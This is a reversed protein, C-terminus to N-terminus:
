LSIQIYWDFSNLMWILIIIKGIIICSRRTMIWAERVQSLSSYRMTTSRHLRRWSRRCSSWEPHRLSRSSTLWTTTHCRGYSSSSWFSYCYKILQNPFNPEVNGQFLISCLQNNPCFKEDEAWNWRGPDSGGKWPKLLLLALHHWICNFFATFYTFIQIYRQQYGRYRQSLIHSARLGSHNYLWAQRLM